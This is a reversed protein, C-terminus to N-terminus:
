RIWVPRVLAADSTTIDIGAQDIVWRTIVGTFSSHYLSKMEEEGVFLLWSALEFM